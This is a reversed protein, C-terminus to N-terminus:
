MLKIRHDKIISNTKCECCLIELEEEEEEKYEEPARKQFEEQYRRYCERCIVKDEANFFRM